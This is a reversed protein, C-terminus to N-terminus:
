IVATPPIPQGFLHSSYAEYIPDAVNSAHNMAAHADRWFRQFPQDARLSGGGARSFISDVADVARRSAAVQNRRVRTRLGIDATTASAAVDYMEAVDRLFHVRSAEVEAAALALSSKAHPDESSRTGMVTVRNRQYAVAAALAGECIGITAASIAGSFIAAFPMRYLAEDRGMEDALRGERLKVFDVTRYAPVFADKVVVDKSGTGKLGMVQWSEDLIEYDRRPILFHLTVPPNAVQGAEDTVFGGLFAWECHDTGSSFPWRGSFQYGGDVARARGLPAYPSAVWRDPDDGWIEEQVKPDALALEWPHVGVVGCVWGTSGCLASAAMVAEYFEVPNSEFGGFESPQLMRIVGIRKLHAVTQDPLRGLQETEAAHETFYDALKELAGLVDTVREGKHRQKPAIM